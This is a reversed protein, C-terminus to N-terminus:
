ARAEYGKHSVILAHAASAHKAATFIASKDNKLVKLWSQLYSAHGDLTYDTLGLDACLFASGLEAVLEEFAYAEDGFLKGYERALRDPHGTWHVLEHLATGYYNAPTKFQEPRPLQIMDAAISYCARNGGHEIRAGTAQLIFEGQELPQSNAAQPAPQEPLGDIDAVNFLWFPKLMPVSRAEDDGEVDAADSREMTKYFICMVGKAGKRVKAGIEQAQKFTLWENREFGRSQAANWLLLVNVGSYARGSTFNRPMGRVAVKQWPREWQGVGQELMAIITNTIETRINMDISESM